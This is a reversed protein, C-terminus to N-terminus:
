DHHAGGGTERHHWQQVSPDGTYPDATGYPQNAPYSRDDGTRPQGEAAPDPSASGRPQRDHAATEAAARFEERMRSRGIPHLTREGDPTEYGRAGSGTGDASYGSADLDTPGRHEPVFRSVSFDAQKEEGGGHSIAQPLMVLSTTGAQGGSPRLQVRIGHRDALRGVVFLGMRRSVEADVTPPNALKDNIDAFEEATLGIGHDHIEVLIRGDALRTASVRVPFHPSSFQIANELLEALLHVLDTVAKGHIDTEPVNSIEIRAYNEVESAAARMVDILPVPQYWRRGPEQGALVLLNEGNRQMRTALHDLQFLIDLRDPESERHELDTILGLQRQILGQNRMSLNTFIANLNGRLLAQEAALRVAKRHIQDFARAVEGIEDTSAIPIPEVDTNVRGPDTRSLLEVMAPLRQGAVELAANRLRVMCRSMSRAMLAAVVLAALVGALVAASDTIADTRANDAVANADRAAQDAMKQEIGRYADFTLTMSSFYGDPTIGRAKLAKPSTGSAVARIMTTRDPPPVYARDAERAQARDSEQQAKDRAEATALARQLQAEDQATGGATYEGIAVQELFAYSTLTSSQTERDATPVEGQVLIHMGISRSLSEASEALSLAYLTRGFSTNSRTGFGLDNAFETLPHQIEGYALETRVGPLADTYANQRVRALDPEVKLFNDLRRKLGQNEPIHAVAAHFEAAARDTTERAKAVDANGTDGKLLPVVSIDRENMLAHGYAAAARELNAMRYADDAQRWRDISEKVNFSGVVLAVVVPILVIAVLKTRM